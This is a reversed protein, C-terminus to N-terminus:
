VLTLLTQMLEDAVTILKAAADYSRQYKMVNMMEEDTSVGSYALKTQQLQTLVLSYTEVNQEQLNLDNAISTIFDSYHDSLTKGNLVEDNKLEALRIAIANDGSM